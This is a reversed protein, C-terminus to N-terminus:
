RKWNIAIEIDKVTEETLQPINIFGIRSFLAPKYQSDYISAYKEWHTKANRLHQIALEQDQKLGYFDYLALYCAGRIKEAYYNGITAFAEIDGLTLDLESASGDKYERLYSLNMLAIRAYKSLTDAVGLPSISDDPTNSKYNEVWESIRIIKSGRIPKREMFDKVTVFGRGGYKEPTRFCAEPFWEYDNRGWSFRTIWPFIMSAASWGDMLAQTPVGKFRSGIMNLFLNDNLHPDYGLQGWLQAEYWRKQISLPRPLHDNKEIVDRAWYGGLYYGGVKEPDPISLVHKRVFSPGGWRLSYVDDNRVELFTRLEPSLDDIISNIFPPDPISYTHAGSYKYSLHFPGPYDKFQEKIESLQTQHFRHYLHFERDPQTKLADMIGQGYTKWLWEEKSYKSDRSRMNEGATIGIGSLHPYTLVMERAAARVYKITEENDQSDDIGYKGDIGFTFINWTFWVMEVGHDHAYKTVDRWFAIKEDISMKKVVEYHKLRDPDNIENGWGSKTSTLKLTTRQVDDLAIDPYEPIKLISPFPNINHLTIINLRSRVMEEILQHWFDIEWITPINLQYHDGLDAYNPTRLDLPMNWKLGRREIYPKNDSESITNETGFRIADAIDLAGYMAGTIDGSLVYLVRRNDEQQNRISYCQWGFHKPMELKNEKSINVASTADSVVKILIDTKSWKQISENLIFDYGKEQVARRIENIAFSLRNDSLDSEVAIRKAQSLDDNLLMVLMILTFIVTKKM